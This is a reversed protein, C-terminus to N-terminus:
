LILKDTKWDFSPSVKKDKTLLNRSKPIALMIGPADNPPDPHDNSGRFNSIIWEFLNFASSKGRIEPM